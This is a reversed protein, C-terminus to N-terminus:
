KLFYKKFLKQSANRLIQKKHEDGSESMTLLAAQLIVIALQPDFPIAQFNGDMIQLTDLDIEGDKGCNFGLCSGEYDKIEKLRGFLSKKCISFEIFTPDDNTNAWEIENAIVNCKM